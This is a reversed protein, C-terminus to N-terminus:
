GSKNESDTPLSPVLSELYEDLNDRAKWWLRQALEFTAPGYDTNREKAVIDVLLAAIAAADVWKAVSWILRDRFWYRLNQTEEM